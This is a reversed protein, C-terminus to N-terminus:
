WSLIDFYYTDQVIHAARPYRLLVVVSIHSVLLSMLILDTDTSAAGEAICLAPATSPETPLWDERKNLRVTRERSM